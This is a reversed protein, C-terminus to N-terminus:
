HGIIGHININISLNADKKKILNDTLDKINDINEMFKSFEEDSPLEIIDKWDSM